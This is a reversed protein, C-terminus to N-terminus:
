GSSGSSRRRIPKTKESRAANDPAQQLNVVAASPRRAMEFFGQAPYFNDRFLFNL